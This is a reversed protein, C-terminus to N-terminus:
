LRGWVPLSLAKSDRSGGGQRVQAGGSRVQGPRGAATASSTPLQAQLGCSGSSGARVRAEGEEEGSAKARQSTRGGALRDKRPWALATSGCWPLVKGGKRARGRGSTGEGGAVGKLRGPKSVSTPDAFLFALFVLQFSTSTPHNNQVTRLTRQLPVTRSSIFIISMCVSDRHNDGFGPERRNNQAQSFAAWRSPDRYIGDSSSFDQQYRNDGPRAIKGDGWNM